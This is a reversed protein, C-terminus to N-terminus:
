PPPVPLKGILQLAWAEGRYYDFRWLLDRVM